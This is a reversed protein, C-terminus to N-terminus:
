VVTEMISPTIPVASGTVAEAREVDLRSGGIASGGLEVIARGTATAEVELAADEAATTGTTVAGEAADTVGGGFVVGATTAGAVFTADEGTATIVGVLLVVAINTAGPGITGGEATENEAGAATCVGNGEFESVEVAMEELVPIDIALWAADSELESLEVTMKELVPSGTAEGAGMTDDGGTTVAEEAATEDFEIM